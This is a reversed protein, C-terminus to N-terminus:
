IGPAALSRALHVPPPSTRPLDPAPACLSRLRRLPAPCPLNPTSPSHPHLHSCSQLNNKPRPSTRTARGPHIIRGTPSSKGTLWAWFPLPPLPTQPQGIREIPSRPNQGVTCICIRPSESPGSLEPPCLHATWHAWSHSRINTRSSISARYISYSPFCCCCCCMLLLVWVVLFRCPLRM